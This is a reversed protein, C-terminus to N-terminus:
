LRPGAAGWGGGKKNVIDNRPLEASLKCLSTFGFSNCQHRRNSRAEHHAAGVKNVGRLENWPIVNVAFFVNAATAGRAVKMYTNMERSNHSSKQLHENQSAQCSERPKARKQEGSKQWFSRGSAPFEPHCLDGLTTSSVAFPDRHSAFASLFGTCRVYAVIDYLYIYTLIYNSGLREFSSTNRRTRVLYSFYQAAPHIPCDNGVGEFM